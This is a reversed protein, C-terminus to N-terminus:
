PGDNPERPRGPRWDCPVSADLATGSSDAHASHLERVTGARQERSPGILRPRVERACPLLADRELWRCYNPRDHAPAPAQPRAGCQRLPTRRLCERLDRINATPPDTAVYAVSASVGAIGKQRSGNLFLWTQKTPLSSKGGSTFVAAARSRIFGQGRSPASKLNGFPNREVVDRRCVFTHLHRYHPATDNHNWSVGATPDEEIHRDVFYAAANFM